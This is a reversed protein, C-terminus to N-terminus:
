TRKSRFVYIIFDSWFLLEGLIIILTVLLDVDIIRHYSVFVLMLLMAIIVMVIQALKVLLYKLWYKRSSRLIWFSLGILVIAEGLYLVLDTSTAVDQIVEDRLIALTLIAILEGRSIKTLGFNLTPIAYYNGPQLNCIVIIHKRPDLGTLDSNCDARFFGKFLGDYFHVYPWKGLPPKDLQKAFYDYNYLLLKDECALLNDSIQSLNKIEPFSEVVDKQDSVVEFANQRTFYLIEELDEVSCKSRDILAFKNVLTSDEREM